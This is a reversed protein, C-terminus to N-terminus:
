EDAQGNKEAVERMRARLAARLRRRSFWAIGLGVVWAAIGAYAVWPVDTHVDVAAASASGVAGFSAIFTVIGAAALAMGFWGLYLNARVHAPVERLSM